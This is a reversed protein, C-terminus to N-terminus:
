RLKQEIRKRDARSTYGALAQAWAERAERIRGLKLDIDGLVDLLSPTRSRKLAKEVHELALDAHGQRFYLRALAAHAPIFDTNLLLIATYQAIALDVQDRRELSEAYSIRTPLFGPSHAINALWLRDAEALEGHRYRLSALNQKANNNDPDDALAKEFLAIAQSDRNEDRALTGLANWIEAREVWPGAARPSAEEIERAKEFYRRANRADGLRQYLLGLNYPLYAYRPGLLMARAYLKIAEQYNGQETELLALNHLPYAWYPAYRIAKLFADRADDFGTGTRTVQELRSIGLANYAYARKPDAQIADKLLSEAGTYSRDFILSRGRCFLSRSRDFTTDPSLKAAEEFYRACSEFDSKTRPQQEGELYRSIVEQGRDELAIRLRRQRDSFSSDSQFQSLLNAASGPEEPLLSGRRLADDFADGQRASVSIQPADRTIARVTRSDRLEKDGLPQAATLPIGEKNADYVVVLDEDTAFYYPLQKGHTFQFVNNSVYAALEAFSISHSGALVASGNMGSILFYSFAGHGGGFSPSEYAFKKASSAMMLGLGGGRGQFMQKVSEEMDAGGAIGAVNQAHCVDLFVLVRGLHGAQTAILKRFEEMPYGTTKPDQPNSEYTLIYPETDISRHTVPDVETKLYVGHGAVFLILTDSSGAGAFGKVADDIAARTARENTLLTIQDPSKLGGGRPKELLAVLTEADKDAFQLSNVPPDNKYRSVGVVIAYTKGPPVHDSRIPAIARTADQGRSAFPLAISVCFLGTRLVRMM